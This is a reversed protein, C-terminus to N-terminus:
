SWIVAVAPPRERSLCGGRREVVILATAGPSTGRAAHAFAPHARRPRHRRHAAQAYVDMAAEWTAADARDVAIAALSSCFAYLVDPRTGTWDVSERGELVAIPDVLTFQGYFELFAVAQGQGVTGVAALLIADLDRPDIWGLVDALITWTRPSPWAGAADVPNSPVGPSIAARNASLYGAVGARMRVRNDYSDVTLDRLGPEHLNGFGASLGQLWADADFAWPLHILRNATPPALDAGDVAEDAPNMATVFVAGPGLWTGAVVRESLVRLFAKHVAGGCSFEDVFQVAVGSRSAYDLRIAWAPTAFSTSEVRHVSGDHMTTTPSITPNGLVDSPEMNTLTMSDFYLGWSRVLSALRTSKGVGPSGVFNVTHQAQIAAAFVRLVTNPHAAISRNSNLSM